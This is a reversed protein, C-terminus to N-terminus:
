IQDQSHGCGHALRPSRSSSITMILVLVPAFGGMPDAAALATQGVITATRNHARCASNLMHSDGVQELVAFSQM